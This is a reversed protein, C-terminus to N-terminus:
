TMSVSKFSLTFTRLYINDVRVSVHPRGQQGDLKPLSGGGGGGGGRGQQGDVLSISALLKKTQCVIKTQLGIM